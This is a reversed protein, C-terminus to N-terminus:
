GNKGLLADIEDVIVLHYRKVGNTCNEQGDVVRKSGSPRPALTPELQPSPLGRRDTRLHIVSSKSPAQTSPGSGASARANDLVLQQVYEALKGKGACSTVVSNGNLLHVIPSPHGHGECWRPLMELVRHQVLIPSPLYM